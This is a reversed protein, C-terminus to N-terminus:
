VAPISLTKGLTPSPMERLASGPKGGFNHYPLLMNWCVCRAAPFEPTKRNHAQMSPTTHFRSPVPRNNENENLDADFM